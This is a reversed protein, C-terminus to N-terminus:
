KEAEKAFRLLKGRERSAKNVAKSLEEIGLPAYIAATIAVSSHRLVKSAVHIGASRAIALGFTRRVDHIHVDQVGAAKQIAQWPRTLDTRHTEAKAGPVVFPSGEQRPLRRLMAVTSDALPIQEGTRGSKPRPIRWLKGELDLDAWRARLVESTRAGTELLLTFAAKAWPDTVEAVANLVKVLEGNSLVRQRPPNEPFPRIRLAPNSPILGRRWAHGLCARISALFRNSTTNRSTPKGKWRPSTGLGEARVLQTLREVEETTVQTLPLSGIRKVAWKLFRSDTKWTVKKSEIIVLYDTVWARFTQRQEKRTGVKEDQPDHGQAVKGAAVKALERAQTVTLPGYRGITLYRRRQSPGYFYFFTKTGAPTAMIGFGTLESDFLKVMPNGKPCVLADIVLKTLRKTRKPKRPPRVM